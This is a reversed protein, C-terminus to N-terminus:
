ITLVREDVVKQVGVSSMAPICFTNLSDLWALPVLDLSNGILEIAELHHVEVLVHVTESAGM